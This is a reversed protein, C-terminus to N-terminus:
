ERSYPIGDAAPPRVRGVLGAVAAITILYPLATILQNPVGFQSTYLGYQSGLAISFGFLLTAMFAGWPRWRGFIMIALAIFGQGGTIGVIMPSGLGITFTAGGIGAIAGGLVVTIFRIRAVNLGVTESAKPKEGVSRIRLGWRTRFLIVNVLAVLIFALYVFFKQDFLVPGLVPIESLGRIAIPQPQYGTNLWQSNNLVQDIVFQVLATCIAVIVVGVIIQNARFRLAMYALIAGLIAGLAAAVLTGAVFGFTTPGIYSTIMESGLAGLMFQGEIAINVVGARECVVGSLSGFMLPTASIFTTALLATLTLQEYSNVNSSRAIWVLFAFIFLAMAVFFIPYAARASRTAILALGGALSVLGIVWATGTVPLTLSKLMDGPGNLNAALAVPWAVLITGIVAALVGLSRLRRRVILVVGGAIACAGIVGVVVQMLTSLSPVANAPVDAFQITSELSGSTGLAFKLLEILALLVVAIGLGISRSTSVARVSELTVVANERVAPSPAPPALVDTM